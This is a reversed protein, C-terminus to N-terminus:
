IDIQVGSATNCVQHRDTCGIIIQVGLSSMHLPMQNILLPISLHLLPRHVGLIMKLPFVAQYHCMKTLTQDVCISDYCVNKAPVVCGYM